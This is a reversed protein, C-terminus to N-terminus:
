AALLQQRQPALADTLRRRAHHLRSMVTGIPCGAIEAIELYSAGDIERLALVEHHLDPLSRMAGRVATDIEAGGVLAEPTREDVGDPPAAETDDRGHNPQAPHDLRAKERRLWDLAANTGIRHLWTALSSRQEFRGIHRCVKVLAEQVVDEADDPNRVIRLAQAVLRPRAWAILMELARRDGSQAAQLIAPLNAEVQHPAETQRIPFSGHRVGTELSGAGRKEM